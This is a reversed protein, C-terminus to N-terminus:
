CIAESDNPPLFRWDEILRENEQVEMLHELLIPDDEALDEETMRAEKSRLFAPDNHAEECLENFSNQGREAFSRELEATDTESLRTLDPKKKPVVTKDDTFGFNDSLDHPWFGDGRVSKLMDYMKSPVPGYPLRHPTDGTITRGWRQFHYKEAYYLTKLLAYLDIKGVINALYLIAALAKRENFRAM